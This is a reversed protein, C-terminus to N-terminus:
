EEKMRMRLKGFRGLHSEVAPLRVQRKVIEKQLSPTEDKKMKKRKERKSGVKKKFSPGRKEEIKGESHSEAEYNVLSRHKKGFNWPWGAGRTVGRKEGCERRKGGYVAEGSASGSVRGV